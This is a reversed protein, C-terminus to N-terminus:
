LELPRLITVDVRKHDSGQECAQHNLQQQTITHHTITHHTSDQIMPVIRTFASHVILGAYLTPTCAYIMSISWRGRHLCSYSISIAKRCALLIYTATCRRTVPLQVFAHAVTQKHTQGGVCLRTREVKERGEVDSVHYFIGSERGSKENRPTWLDYTFIACAYSLSGPVSALINCVHVHVHVHVKEREETVWVFPTTAGLDLIHAGVAMCHNLIRTIEAFLTRIFKARPPIDIGMLREIALSYAQENCMM